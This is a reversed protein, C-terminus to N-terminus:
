PWGRWRGPQWRAGCGGATCRRGPAGVLAPLERPLVPALESVVAELLLAASLSDEQQQYRSCVASAVQLLAEAAGRLRQQQEQGEPLGQLAALYDLLM